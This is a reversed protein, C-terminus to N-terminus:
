VGWSSTTSKKLLTTARNLVNGEYVHSELAPITGLEVVVYVEASINAANCDGLPTVATIWHSFM